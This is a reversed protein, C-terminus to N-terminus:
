SYMGWLLSDSADGEPRELVNSLDYESFLEPSPIVGQDVVMVRAADVVDRLGTPADLAEVAAIAKQLAELAKKNPEAAARAAKDASTKVSALQRTIDTRLRGLAENFRKELAAREAAEHAEHAAQEKRVKDIDKANRKNADSLDKDAKDSKKKAKKFRDDIAKAKREEAAAKTGFVDFVDLRSLLDQAGDAVGGLGGAEEIMAKGKEAMKSAAVGGLVFGLPKALWWM